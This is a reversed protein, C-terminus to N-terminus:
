RISSKFFHSPTSTWFKNNNIIFSASLKSILDKESSTEDIPTYIFLFRPTLGNNEHLCKIYAMVNGGERDGVVGNIVFWNEDFKKRFYTIKVFEKEIEDYLMATPIASISAEPIVVCGILRTTTDEFILQQPMERVKFNNPLDISIDQFDYSFLNFTFFLFLLAILKKM